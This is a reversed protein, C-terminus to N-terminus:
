AEYDQDFREEPERRGRESQGPQGSRGAQEDQPSKRGRQPMREKAEDVKQRAQDQWQETRDQFKDKMGM